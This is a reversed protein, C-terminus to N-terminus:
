YACVFSLTDLCLGNSLGTSTLQTCNGPAITGNVSFLTDPIPKTNFYTMEPGSGAVHLPFNSEANTSNIYDLIANLQTTTQIALLRAQDNSCVTEAEDHSANGNTVKYCLGAERDMRYGRDLAHSLNFFYMPRTYLPIDMPYRKGSHNQFNGFYNGGYKMCQGKAADYAFSMCSNSGYCDQGCRPADVELVDTPTALDDVVAPSYAVKSPIAGTLM